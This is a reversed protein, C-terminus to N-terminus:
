VHGLEPFLASEPVGLVRSAAARYRASARVQGGEVMSVYAHSFETRRAQETVSLGLLRRFREHETIVGTRGMAM